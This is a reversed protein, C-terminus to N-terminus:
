LSAFIVLIPESTKNNYCNSTAVVVADWESFDATKMLCDKTWTPAHKFRRKIPKKNKKSKRLSYIKKHLFLSPLRINSFVWFRFFICLERQFYALGCHSLPRADTQSKFIYKILHLRCTCVTVSHSASNTPVCVRNLISAKVPSITTRWQSASKVTLPLANSM